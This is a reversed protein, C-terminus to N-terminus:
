NVFDRRTDTEENVHSAALVLHAHPQADGRSNTKWHFIGSHDIDGLHRRERVQAITQETLDRLFAAQDEPAIQAAVASDLSVIISWGLLSQGRQALLREYMTDRDTGLGGDWWRDRSYKPCQYLLEGPREPDAVNRGGAGERHALYGLFRKISAASKTAKFMDLKVIVPARNKM